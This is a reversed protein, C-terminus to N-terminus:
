NLWVATRMWCWWYLMCRLLFLFHVGSWGNIFILVVFLVWAVAHSLAYTGLMIKILPRYYKGTSLHRQKQHLWTQWDKKTDSFSQAKPHAVIAVNSQHGCIRVLLDDDGSPLANWIKAQMAKELIKKTCAMNRGVAMYPMGNLAYASYQVFSHLTECRTFRNVLSQEPRYTGYGCVIEKGATLPKIMEKLWEKTAPECDADTLLLYDHAAAAVGKSLAFKKGKFKRPEDPAITIVRLQKYEKQLHCLLSETADNSADNVVLVEYLPQGKDDHYSQSLVQPLCKQLNHFENKACILITVPQSNLTTSIQTKKQLKSLGVLFFAIYAIQILVAALFCILLINIFM